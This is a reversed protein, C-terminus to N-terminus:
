HSIRNSHCLTSIFSLCFVDHGLQMQAISLNKVVETIGNYNEQGLNAIYSYNKM